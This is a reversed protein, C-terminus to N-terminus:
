RFGNFEWASLFAAKVQKLFDRYARRKMRAVADPNWKLAGRPLHCRWRVPEMRWDFVDRDMMPENEYVAKFSLTPVGLALQDRLESNEKEVHINWEELSDVVRYLNDIKAALGAQSDEGKRLHEIIEAVLKKTSSM